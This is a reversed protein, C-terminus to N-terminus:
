AVAAAAHRRPPYLLVAGVLFCIGGLATGWNAWGLNLVDDSSPQTWAGIASIGFFISGLMNVAAIAWSRDRVHRHRRFRVAPVLAIASSILFLISGIADPAWVLHASYDGRGAADIAARLTTVNFELTGIWQVVAALWDAAEDSLPRGRRLAKPTTPRSTIMQLTAATTFFVSGLFFTWGAVAPSISTDLSLPVGVVFLASGIAFGLASASVLRRDGGPIEQDTV